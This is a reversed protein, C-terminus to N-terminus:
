FCCLFQSMWVADFGTPFPKSHDLLDFPQLDVREALGKAELTQKAKELQGCHDLITVTVDPDFELCQVAFRGTNGGVDLLRQPKNAFIIPLVDPFATDSYYHDFAHWSKQVDEPLQSLGEYITPWDGFVKLGAPKRERISAELHQMGAYCVDNTFDMNIRTLEDKLLFFGTKTIIYREDKLQVVDIGLCGELLVTVGYFSLGTKEAVEEIEIGASGAELVAELVGTDRAVRVAQFMVPAFAIKQADMKADLTSRSTPVKYTTM